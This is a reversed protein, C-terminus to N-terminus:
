KNMTAEKDTIAMLVHHSVMRYAENIDAPWSGNQEDVMTLHKLLNDHLKQADINDPIDIHWARTITGENILNLTVAPEGHSPLINAVAMYRGPASNAKEAPGQSGPRDVANDPKQTASAIRAADSKMNDNALEGQTINMFQDNFVVNEDHIDFDKNYKNKWDKLFQDIRGNLDDYNKNGAKGLRDQDAKSLYGVLNDFHNKTVADQTV